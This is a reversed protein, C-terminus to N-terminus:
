QELTTDTDRIKFQYEYSGDGKVNVQSVHIIEDGKFFQIIVPYREVYDSAEGGITGWHIRDNEPINMKTTIKQLSIEENISITTTISESTQTEAQINLPIMLVMVTSM